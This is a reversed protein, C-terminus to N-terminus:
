YVSFVLSHDGASSIKKFRRMYEAIQFTQNEEKACVTYARCERGKDNYALVRKDGLAAASALDIEGEGDQYLKVRFSFYGDKLPVYDDCYISM